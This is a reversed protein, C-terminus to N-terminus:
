RHLQWTGCRGHLPKSDDAQSHFCGTGKKKWCREFSVTCHPLHQWWLTPKNTGQLDQPCTQQRNSTHLSLYTYLTVQTTDWLDATQSQHRPRQWCHRRGNKNKQLSVSVEADVAAAIQPPHRTKEPSWPQGHPPKQSRGTGWLPTWRQRHPRAPRPIAPIQQSTFLLLCWNPSYSIRM